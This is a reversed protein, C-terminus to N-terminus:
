EFHCRGEGPFTREVRAACAVQRVHSRRCRDRHRRRGLAVSRHGPKDPFHPAVGLTTRLAGVHVGPILGTLRCSGLLVLRVFVFCAPSAPFRRAAPMNLNKPWLISHPALDRIYYPVPRNRRRTSRNILGILNAAAFDIAIASGVDLTMTTIRVLIRTGITCPITFDICNDADYFRLRPFSNAM